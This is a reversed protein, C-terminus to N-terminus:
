WKICWGPPKNNGLIARKEKRLKSIEKNQAKIELKLLEIEKTLNNIYDDLDFEPEM